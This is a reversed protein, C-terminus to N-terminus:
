TEEHALIGKKKKESVTLTIYNQTERKARDPLGSKLKIDM